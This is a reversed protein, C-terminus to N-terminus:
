IFLRRALRDFYYVILRLSLAWHEVKSIIKLQEENKKIDIDMKIKEIYQEEMEPEVGFPIAFVTTKETVTMPMFNPILEM